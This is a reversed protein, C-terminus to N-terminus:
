GHHGYSQQIKISMYTHADDTKIQFPMELIAMTELLHAIESDDGESSLDSIRQFETYRILMHVYRLEGLEIFHLVCGM